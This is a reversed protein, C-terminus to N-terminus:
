GRLIRAAAFQVCRKYFATSLDVFKDRGLAEYVNLGDILYNSM